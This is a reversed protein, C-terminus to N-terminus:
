VASLRARETCGHCLGCWGRTCQVAQLADRRWGERAEGTPLQLVAAVPKHDSTAIGEASWYPGLQAQRHPLNSRVLVRDCWAPSRQPSYVCGALGKRVQLLASWLNPCSTQPLPFETVTRDPPLAWGATDGQSTPQSYAVNGGGAAELTIGDM